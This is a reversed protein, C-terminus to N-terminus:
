FWMNSKTKHDYHYQPFIDEGEKTFSLAFSTLPM